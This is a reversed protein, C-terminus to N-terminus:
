FSIKLFLLLLFIFLWNKPVHKVVKEKFERAEQYQYFFDLYSEKINKNQHKFKMLFVSTWYRKM